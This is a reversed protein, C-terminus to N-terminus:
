IIHYIEANWEDGLVVNIKSDFQQDWAYQTKHLQKVWTILERIMKQFQFM